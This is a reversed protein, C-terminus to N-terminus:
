ATLDVSNGNDRMIKAALEEEETLEGELEDLSTLNLNRKSRGGESSEGGRNLQEDYNQQANGELNQEFKHPQATVEVAEVKLGQMNLTEKLGNIQSALAERAAESQATIQATIQGAEQAVKIYVKGLNEPTLQLEISSTDATVNTSIYSTVQNLINNAQDYTTTTYSVQQMQGEFTVTTSTTQTANTATTQTGESISSALNQNTNQNGKANDSNNSATEESTDESVNQQAGLTTADKTLSDKILTEDNTEIEVKITQNNEGSISVQEDSIIEAAVANEGVMTQNAQNLNDPGNQNAEPMPSPEIIEKPIVAQEDVNLEGSDIMDQIIGLQADNLNTQQMIDETLQQMQTFIQSINEDLLITMDDMPQNTINTVVEILNQPNMLDTMTLSLQELVNTIEEESVDLEDMLIRSVQQTFDSLEEAVNSVDVLNADNETDIMDAAYTTSEQEKLPMESKPSQSKDLVFVGEKDRISASDNKNVTGMLTKSFASDSTKIDNSSTLDNNSASLSPTLNSVLTALNAAQAQTNGLIKM